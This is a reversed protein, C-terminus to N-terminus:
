RVVTVRGVLHHQHGTLDVVDITWVYVDNQVRHGKVKGDWYDNLNHSYFIQEGWRDYIRLEYDNPNFGMGKPTFYENFIDGNPSFATPVHLQFESRIIITKNADNTCGYDNSTRLTISYEGDEKFTYGINQLTGLGPAKIPTLDDVKGAAMFLGAFDWGLNTAGISTNIAYVTPDKPDPVEPSLIFDAVPTPRVTFQNTFSTTAVCGMNTTGRVCVSYVGSDPYTHAVSNDPGYYDFVGDCEFDIEYFNTGSVPLIVQGEFPACGQREVDGLKLEPLPNVVVLISDEDARNCGDQVNVKYYGTSDSMVSVESIDFNTTATVNQGKPNIWLWSYATPKGGSVKASISVMDGQCIPGASNLKLVPDPIIQFNICANNSNCGKSDTVFFCYTANQNLLRSHPGPGVLSTDTWHYEYQASGGYAGAYFQVMSGKCINASPSTVLMIPRPEEIKACKVTSCNLEDTVTVCYTGTRLAVAMQTSQNYAGEDWKYSLQGTGGSTYATVSGNAYEACTPKVTILSDIKPKVSNSINVDETIKCSNKDEVKLLYYGECLNNTVPGNSDDGAGMWNYSYPTTGGFVKASAQGNCLGCTANISDVMVMLASPQQLAIAETNKCGYRDTVTVNYGGACLGTIYSSNLPSSNWQYQYPISGGKVIADIRGNCDGFCDPQNGQLSEIELKVPQGINVSAMVQCGNSDTVIASAVGSCLGTNYLQNPSFGGNWNIQYPKTGGNVNLTADADCAEYCKADNFFPIFASLQSPQSICLSASSKCGLQDTVVLTYCGKALGSKALVNTAIVQNDENLLQTTMTGTGGSHAFEVYGNNSNFCSLNKSFVPEVTPGSIDNVCAQYVNECGAADTVMVLYCGAGLATACATTQQMEDNWLFSYPATGGYPSVCISGNKEGCNSEVTSFDAGVRATQAILVARSTSCNNQDRVYLTYAGDCLSDVYYTTPSQPADWQIQYPQTGGSVEALATGQCSENCSGTGAVINIVIPLPEKIDANVFSKCGKSDTVTATYNGACLDKAFTGSGVGQSWEYNYPAVGGETLVDAYGDCAQNCTIDKVTKLYLILTDPQNVTNSVSVACNNRDTITCSYTGACLGSATRSVQNNAAADWQYTFPAVGNLPLAEIKGDCIASCSADEARSDALLQDPNDVTVDIQKVCNNSDTVMLTYTGACLNVLSDAFGMETGDDGIWRFNYPKTGGKVKAIIKGDCSNFCTPNQLIPFVEIEKPQDITVALTAVCGFQTEFKVVYIGACLGSATVGTQNGTNVDWEVNYFTSDGKLGVTASGTCEGFCKPTDLLRVEAEPANSNAVTIPLRKECGKADTVKVVYTNAFLNNVCQTTQGQPWLVQYPGTGGSILVCASGSSKGCDTNVVSSDLTMPGPQTITTSAKAECGVDDTVTVEYNGDCLSYAIQTTQISFDNWKYQYPGIGGSVNATAKGDCAEFCKVNEKAITVLFPAPNVLVFDESTAECGLADKVKVYYVGAPLNQAISGNQGISTGTNRDFWEYTYSGAGGSSISAQLSGSNDGYCRVPSLISISATFGASNAVLVDASATCGKKDTVEVQYFGQALDVAPNVTQNGTAADWQYVFPGNGGSAVTVFAKGRSLGCYDNVVETTLVMKAPETVVFSKSSQCNNLDSVLISYNGAKLNNAQTGGSVDPSWLMVYPQTGGQVFVQISGDNGEACTVPTVQSSISIPQPEHIISTISKTCNNEDTIQLGYIGAPLSDATETNGGIPSWQFVYEPTGGSVQVKLMGDAKGPCSVDTSSIVNAQIAPPETLTLSDTRTCGEADTTEVVYKGAPLNNVSPSSVSLPSWQYTYPAVGGYASAAVRGNNGGNCSINNFSLSINLKTLEKIVFQASGKCNGTGSGSIVLNYTGAPVNKLITDTSNDSWLYSYPSRGGSVEATLDTKQGKCIMSDGIIKVLIESDEIISRCINATCGVRDKVTVCYLGAPKTISKVNEGSDWSYSYGGYGDLGQATLTGNTGYCVSSSSDIQASLFKAPVIINVTDAGTCGLSDIINVWAKGPGLTTEQGGDGNSWVYTYNGFGGQANVKVQSITACAFLSDVPINVLLPKAQEIVITDKSQCGNASADKVTVIYTGATATISASTAGTNWLYTYPTKGGSVSTNLTTSAGNCVLTFGTISADLENLQQITGCTNFQCGYQDTITVCYNGAPKSITKTTEGTNWLYSYNGYGNTGQATITGMTGFCVEPGATATGSLLNSPLVVVVTDSAKCGLSDTVTVYHTGAGLDTTSGGDGNSWSYTYQGAGGGVSVSVTSTNVCARLTDAPIDVLFPVTQKVVITDTDTCGNASGDTVKVTYTGAPANISATTAGTNWLYTYPALGGTPTSSLLTTTGNCILTAGSLNAKLDGLEQIAGCATAKCGKIDTITVCYNGALKSITKTTEGTDWLYSYNGYGDVGQGTITGNTGFCVEPGATATGSLITSPLVVNVSDSASCGLSDTVTVSHKGVGLEATPGSDGNSWSYTYVGSGGM